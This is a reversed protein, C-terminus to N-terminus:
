DPRLVFYDTTPFVLEGLVNEAVLYRSNTSFTGNTLYAELTVNSFTINVSKMNVHEASICRYKTGM